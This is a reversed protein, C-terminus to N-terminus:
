PATSDSQPENLFLGHTTKEWYWPASVLQLVAKVAGISMMLWYMPILLAAGTLELQDSERVTLVGMYLCSFNGFAFCCLALYYLWAPFLNPIWAPKSIFWMATLAWVIPNLLALLPTGGVLLTLARFGSGGLETRLRTPSRFHVICTQLYGKHWRSRQKVWNVFDANAEERTLSDLVAVRYGSRHLRIGLDADETVNFPDWAGIEELVERRFHNSTGGLPLPADKAVLSPLFYSFWTAYEIQFWRTILNQDANYFALRAQLCAVDDDVRQFAAVARRLQLPDPVDDADYVTVLRGRALQLGYNCAKPKTRPGAPPVLVIEMWEPLLGDIARRTTHDDAELLLKVDLLERPYEIAHLARLLQPIVEPERHAPILVTYVPLDCVALGRAEEDTIVVVNAGRASRRFLILRYAVTTTYMALACANVAILLAWPRAIAAALTIIAVVALVIIVRRTLTRAASLHPSARRLHEVSVTLHRDEAFLAREEHRM